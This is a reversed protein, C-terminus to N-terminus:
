TGYASGAALMATKATLVLRADTGASGTSTPVVTTTGCGGSYTPTISSFDGFAYNPLALTIVDEVEVPVPATFAFSVATSTGAYANSVTFSTSSLTAVAVATSTGIASAVINTAKALTVAATMDTSDAGIAAAAANM